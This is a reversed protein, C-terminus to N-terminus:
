QFKLITGKRTALSYRGLERTKDPTLARWGLLSNYKNTIARFIVLEHQKIVECKWHEQDTFYWDILELSM